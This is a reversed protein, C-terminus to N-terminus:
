APRGPGGEAAERAVVTSGASALVGLVHEYERRLAEVLARGSADRESEPLVFFAYTEIEVHETVGGSAVHRLAEDLVRRTTRLGGALEDRFVPVHFHVRWPDLGRVPSGDEYAPGLDVALRALGDDGRAGVQHLYVPEDFALLARRRGPDEPARVELAASAQLKEVAIGARGLADLSARADEQMVAQHCVDFCAGLHSRAEADDGLAEALPGEFFRVLDATRELLCGPEPEIALAVRVGTAERLRVLGRAARALAAAGERTEPEADTGARWALPSTSISVRSLGAAGALDAMVEALATTYALRAPERWSPRYVEAKLARGHFDGVVFGNATFPVFGGGALRDRLDARLAADGHLRTVAAGDLRLGLGFPGTHGLAERLPTATDDLARVTTEVGGGPHVNMGYGLWCAGGPGELRM